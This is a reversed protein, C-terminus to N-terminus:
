IYIYMYIYLYITLYKNTNIYTDAANQMNAQLGQLSMQFHKFRKNLKVLTIPTYHWKVKCGTRLFSKQVSNPLLILTVPLASDDGDASSSRVNALWSEMRQCM